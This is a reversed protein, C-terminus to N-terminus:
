RKTRPQRTPKNTSLPEKLREPLVQVAEDRFAQLYDIVRDVDSPLDGRYGDLEAAGWNQLLLVCAAEAAHAQLTGRQNIESSVWSKLVSVADKFTLAEAADTAVEPERAIPEHPVGDAETTDSDEVPHGDVVRRRQMAMLREATPNRRRQAASLVDLAHAMAADLTPKRINGRDGTLVFEGGYRRDGRAILVRAWQNAVELYDGRVPGLATDFTNEHSM